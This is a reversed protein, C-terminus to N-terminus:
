GQALSTAHEEPVPPPGSAISASADGNCAAAHVVRNRGCRKAEYLARDALAIMPEATGGPRPLWTAVGLSATVTCHDQAAPIALGEIAARAREAVHMAGIAPTEPLVLCFEEGGYRGAFDAPRSLARTLATAVRRLCEDGALHGHRDNYKKFHDVDALVVSVPIRNRAARGLERALAADLARRNGVGTLGDTQAAQALAENARELEQTTDLLKRRMAAIRQMSRMKAALVVPDCPKALYDDGGAEIGAAIDAAETRGSLFIIPVWESETSRLRRATEHGGVGPMIVDLLVHSISLDEALTELGQPGDVAESVEHGLQRLITAPLKRNFETDDVVLINM